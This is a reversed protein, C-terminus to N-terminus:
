AISTVVELIRATSKWHVLWEGHGQGPLIRVDSGAMNLYEIVRSTDFINDLESIFIVCNPPIDRSFLVCEQWWFHRHFYHSITLEKCIHYQQIIEIPTTPTCYCFNNMTTAEYLLFCVPDLLVVSNVLHRKLRNVAAFVFTGLSHAIWVAPKLRFLTMAEETYDAIQKMTPVTEVNLKMSVHPLEILMITRHSSQKQRVLQLLFPLYTALGIGVGHVFVYPPLQENPPVDCQKVWYSMCGIKHRRFGHLYICMDSMFDTLSTTAYYVLPRHYAVVPDAILNHIPPADSPHSSQFKFNEIAEIRRIYEDVEKSDSASVEDYKQNFFCVSLMEKMAGKGCRELPLPATWTRLFNLPSENNLPASTMSEWLEERRSPLSYPPPHRKQARKLSRRFWMYFIIELASYGILIYRGWSRSRSRVFAEASLLPCMIFMLPTVARIPWVLSHAILTYIMSSHIVLWSDVCSTNAQPHTL